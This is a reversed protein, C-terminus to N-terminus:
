VSYDHVIKHAYLPPNSFPVDEMWIIGISKQGSGKVLHQYNPLWKELLNGPEFGGLIGM